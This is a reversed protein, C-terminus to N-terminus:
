ISRTHSWSVSRVDPSHISLFVDPPYSCTAIDVHYLHHGSFIIRRLEPSARIGPTIDPFLFLFLARTLQLVVFAAGLNLMSCPSSVVHQRVNHYVVM